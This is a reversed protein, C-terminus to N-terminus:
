AELLRDIYHESEETAKFTSAFSSASFPSIFPFTTSLVWAFLLLHLFHTPFKPHHFLELIPNYRYNCWVTFKSFIM